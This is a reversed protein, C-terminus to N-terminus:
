QKVSLDQELFKKFTYKIPSFFQSFHIYCESDLDIKLQETSYSLEDKKISCTSQQMTTGNTFFSIKLDSIFFIKFVSYREFEPASFTRRNM